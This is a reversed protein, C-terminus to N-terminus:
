KIKYFYGMTEDNEKEQYLDCWSTVVMPPEGHIICHGFEKCIHCKINKMDINEKLHECPIKDPTFSYLCCLVCKFHTIYNDQITFEGM